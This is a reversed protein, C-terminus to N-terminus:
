CVEDLLEKHEKLYLLAMRLRKVNRDKKDFTSINFKQMIASIHTHATSYQINLEKAIQKNSFSKCILRIVERERPTLIDDIM